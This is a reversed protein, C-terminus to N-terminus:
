AASIGIREPKYFKQEDLEKTTYGVAKLHCETYHVHEIVKERQM